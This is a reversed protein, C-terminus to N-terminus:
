PYSAKGAQSVTKAKLTLTPPDAPLNLEVTRTEVAIVGVRFAELVLEVCVVTQALAPHPVTWRTFIQDYPAKTPFFQIERDVPHSRTTSPLIPLPGGLGM